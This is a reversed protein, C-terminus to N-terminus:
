DNHCLFVGLENLSHPMGIAASLEVIWDILAAGNSASPNVVRAMRLFSKLPLM